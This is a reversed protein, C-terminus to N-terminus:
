SRKGSLHYLKAILLFLTVWIEEMEGLTGCAYTVPVGAKRNKAIFGAAGFAEDDPHPLIVLVHERM